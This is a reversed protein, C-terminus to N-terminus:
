EKRIELSNNGNNEILTNFAAPIILSICSLTMLSSITQATIKKFKQEEYYYGGVLICMGLVLLLNSIISGLLSTQVIEIENHILAFISIILEVINGFAAALLGGIINNT